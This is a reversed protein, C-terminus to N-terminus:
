SQIKWTLFESSGMQLRQLFTQLDYNALAWYTQEFIAKCELTRDRIQEPTLNEEIEFEVTLETGTSEYKGPFTFKDSKGITIKM